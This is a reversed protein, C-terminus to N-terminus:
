KCFFIDTLELTSVLHLGDIIQHSPGNNAASTEYNGQGTGSSLDPLDGWDYATCVRDRICM